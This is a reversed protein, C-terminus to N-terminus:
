SGEVHQNVIITMLVHITFTQVHLPIIELCTGGRLPSILKTIPQVMFPITPIISNTGIEMSVFNPPEYKLDPFYTKYAQLELRYSQEDFHALEM